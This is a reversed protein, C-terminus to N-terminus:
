QKGLCAEVVALDDMWLDKGSQGRLRALRGECDDILKSLRDLEEKTMSSVRMATLENVNVFGLGRLEGHVVDIAKRRIDYEDNVMMMVFRYREQHGRLEEAWTDLLYKRREDYVVLRGRCYEVLMDLTSGYRRVRVGDYVHLNCKVAKQLKFVKVVDVSDVDKVLDIVFHVNLDTNDKGFVWKKVVVSKDLEEKFKETWLGVPLETIEIKSVGLKKWVGQTYWKGGRSVVSGRFGRYWPTLYRPLKGGALWVRIMKILELPDHCPVDTSYGTGIGTTGNVLLMPIVPWYVEPEVQQNDDVVYKLVPDDLPNFIKRTIDSLQTFIYRSSAADKGGSSRTGFAGNPMLLNVNNSGVFDQAMGVFTDTLSKEGHHYASVTSVEGAIAAVKKEKVLNKKICGFLVKRQSVKLGDMRPISRQNDYKSFELLESNLFKTVNVESKGDDDDLPQQVWDKRSDAEKDSFALLMNKDASADWKYTYLHTSLAKFYEKAEASTSTGLGKYYKITWGSRNDGQYWLKYDNLKYFPMVTKGRTAKVIPTKLYTVFGKVKALEPWQSKLLCLILGRIHYGDVDADTCICIRGYRLMGVDTYKKGHELGMIKKLATFEANNSLEAASANLANLPKGKLPYAGHYDHGVISLGALICSKASDGETLYLTCDRSKATGAYNADDLKPIGKLNNTKRGDTKGLEKRDKAEVMAMVGEVIGLKSCVDKVFKDSVEVKSVFSSVYSTLKTKCQSNFKPNFVRTKVFVFMNDKVYNPKVTIDKNKKKSKILEVVSEVIRKTVTDVHSGGEITSIGNVFSVSKYDNSRAVCIEWNEDVSEYVKPESTYLEVYKQFSKINLKSDNFYVSVKAPTNVCSDYCRRQFVSQMDASISDCGFRDFDPWFRITVYGKAKGYKTIKPKGTVTMNREFVQKYLKGTGTDGVEVEFRSSFLNALKAGYGNRGGTTRKKSDDYNSSTLLHGFILEPVYVGTEHVEIPIGTSTNSVEVHSDDVKVEIRDVLGDQQTQDTANVLVEDFLKYLGPVWKITKLEFKGDVMVWQEVSELGTDGIYTDPRLLVQENLTKKQYKQNVDTTTAM